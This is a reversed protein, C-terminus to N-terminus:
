RSCIWGHSVSASAPDDRRTVPLEVRWLLLLLPELLLPELLISRVCMLLLLNLKVVFCPLPPWRVLLVAASTAVGPLKDGDSLLADAIASVAIAELLIADAVWGRLRLLLM